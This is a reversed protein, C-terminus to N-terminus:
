DDSAMRPVSPAPFRRAVVLLPYGAWELTAFYVSTYSVSRTHRHKAYLYAPYTLPGAILWFPTVVLAVCVAARHAASRLM